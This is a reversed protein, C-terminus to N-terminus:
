IFAQYYSTSKPAGKGCRRRAVQRARDFRETLAAASSWAWLLAAPVLGRVAWGCDRRLAIGKWGVGSLLWHVAVSLEPVDGGSAMLGDRDRHSM